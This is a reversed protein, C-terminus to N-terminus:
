ILRADSPALDERFLLKEKEYIKKMLPRHIVDAGRKIRMTIM